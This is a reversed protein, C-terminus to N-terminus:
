EDRCIGRACSQLEEFSHISDARQVLSGQVHEPLSLYFKKAKGSESLLDNLNGYAKM